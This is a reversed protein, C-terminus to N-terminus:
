ASNGGHAEGLVGLDLAHGSLATPAEDDRDAAGEGTAASIDDNDIIRHLSVISVRLLRTTRDVLPIRGREHRPEIVLSGAGDNEDHLTQM